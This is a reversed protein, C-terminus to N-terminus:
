QCLAQWQEQGGHGYNYCLPFEYRYEDLLLWVGIVDTLEM